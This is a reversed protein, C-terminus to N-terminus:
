VALKGLRLRTIRAQERAAIALERAPDNDIRTALLGLMEGASKGSACVIFIYGFRALYRENEAALVRRMEVDAEAVAAQEQRSWASGGSAGIRPHQAFAELFDDRGLGTWVAGADDYLAAASAWPRRALMAAVWRSSGCCHTLAEHAEDATMANLIEHPEAM